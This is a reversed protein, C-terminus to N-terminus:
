CAPEPDIPFEEPLSVGFEVYLSGRISRKRRVAVAILRIVKDDGGIALQAGDARFALSGISAPLPGLKKVEKGDSTSIVRVSGSALAIAAQSGNGNFTYSNDDDFTLRELAMNYQMRVTRDATIANLFSAGDGAAVAMAALDAVTWGPIPYSMM